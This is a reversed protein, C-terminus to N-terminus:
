LTSSAGSGATFELNMRSVRFRIRHERATQARFSRILTLVSSFHSCPRALGFGCAAASTTSTRFYGSVSSRSSFTGAPHVLASSALSGSAGVQDPYVSGADPAGPTERWNSSFGRSPQSTTQEPPSCRSEPSTWDVQTISRVGLLFVKKARSRLSKAAARPQTADGCRKVDPGDCEFTCRNVRLRILKLRLRDQPHSQADFAIEGHRPSNAFPQPIDM